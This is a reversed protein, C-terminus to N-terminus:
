AVDRRLVFRTGLVAFAVGYAAFLLGGGWMPLLDGETRILAGAAGLPLWRGVDPVLAVLLNEVVLMWGLAVSVAAVQNRVLAGVGVGVVGYLATAVLTGLLVLPLEDAVLSWPVDKANLWPLAIALSLVSAVTALALGTLAAAVLKAGVVWGRCPTVLFTSTVTGHRFEGAMALIGMVLAIVAAQEASIANAVGEATDLAPAGNKAAGVIGGVVGLATSALMALALGYLMRTTRLKQLEARILATM